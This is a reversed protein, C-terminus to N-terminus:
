KHHDKHGLNICAIGIIALVLGIKQTQRLTEEYFFIGVLAIGMLGIVEWIGYAISIPIKILSLAMFYYSIGILSFVILYGYIAQDFFKLLSTALVETFIALCLFFWYKKM